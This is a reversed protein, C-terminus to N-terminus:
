HDTADIMGDWVGLEGAFEHAARGRSFVPPFVRHISAGIYGSPGIIPVQKSVVWLNYPILRHVLVKGWRDEKRVMVKDAVRSIYQADWLFCFLLQGYANMPGYAVPTQLKERSSMEGERTISIQGLFVVTEILHTGYFDTLIM